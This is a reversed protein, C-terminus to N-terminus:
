STKKKNLISHDHGFSCTPTQGLPNITYQGGRPCAPSATLVKGHKVLQELTMQAGPKLDYDLAYREKAALIRVLNERCVDRQGLRRTSRVNPIAILVMLVLILLGLGLSFLFAGQSSDRRRM